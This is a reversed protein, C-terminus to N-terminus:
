LIPGRERVPPKIMPTRSQSLSLPRNPALPSGSAPACAATACIVAAGGIAGPEGGWSAGAGDAVGGAASVGDGTSMDVCGFGAAPKPPAACGGTGSGTGRGGPAGPGDGAASLALPAAGPADAAGAAVGEGAAGGPGGRGM